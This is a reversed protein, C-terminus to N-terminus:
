PMGWLVSGVVYCFCGLTIWIVLWAEAKPTM